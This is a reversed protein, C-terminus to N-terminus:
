KYTHCHRLSCTQQQTQFLAPVLVLQNLMDIGQRVSKHICCNKVASFMATSGMRLGQMIHDIHYEWKQSHFWLQPSAMELIWSHNMVMRCTIGVLAKLLPQFPGVTYFWSIIVIIFLWLDAQIKNNVWEPFNLIHGRIKFLCCKVLQVTCMHMLYGTFM